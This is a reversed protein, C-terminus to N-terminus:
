FPVVTVHLKEANSGLVWFDSLRLPGTEFPGLAVPLQSAQTPDLSFGHASSSVTADAGIYVASSNAPDAQFLIQRLGYDNAGGVSQDAAALLSTLPQAAGTLTLTYVAIM